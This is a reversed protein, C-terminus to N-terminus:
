CNSSGQLVMYNTCLQHLNPNWHTIMTYCLLRRSGADVFANIQVSHGRSNPANAPIAEKTDCYIDKWNFRQFKTEDWSQPYPDFVLKSNEHSKLYSFVHLVELMHGVRPQAMFSSLLSVDVCIDIRGLEVMWRLIGILSMYYSAQDEDLLPSVDLEPRYGPTMPKVPKGVLRQGSKSLELEVCRVAEKVCQQSSMVWIKHGSISWEKITAGLYSTSKAAPEKLSNM